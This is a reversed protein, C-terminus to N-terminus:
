YNYKFTINPPTWCGWCGGDARPTGFPSGAILSSSPTARVTLSVWLQINLFSSPNSKSLAMGELIRPTTCIKICVYIYVYM